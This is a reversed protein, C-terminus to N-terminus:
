TPSPENQEKTTTSLSQEYASQETSKSKQASRPWLQGRIAEAEEEVGEEEHGCEEQSSQLGRREGHKYFCAHGLERISAIREAMLDLYNCRQAPDPVEVKFRKSSTLGVRLTSM